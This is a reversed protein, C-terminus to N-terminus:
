PSLREWAIRAIDFVSSPGGGQCEFRVPLISNLPATATGVQGEWGAPEDDEWNVPSSPYWVKGSVQPTDCDIRYRMAVWEDVTRAVGFMFNQNDSYDDYGYPHYSECELRIRDNSCSMLTHCMDYFDSRFLIRAGINWYFLATYEWVGTPGWAGHPSYSLDGTFEFTWWVGAQPGSWSIVPVLDRVAYEMHSETDDAADCWVRFVDSNDMPYKEGVTGTPIFIQSPNGKTKDQKVEYWGFLITDVGGFADIMEVEFYYFGVHIENGGVIPFDVLGDETPGYIIGDVQFIETGTTAPYAETGVTM